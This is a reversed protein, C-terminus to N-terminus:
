LEGVCDGFVSCQVNFMSCQVSVSVRFVMVEAFSKQEEGFSYISFKWNWDSVNVAWQGNPVFQIIFVCM